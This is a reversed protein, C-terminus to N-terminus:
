GGFGGLVIFALTPLLVMAGVLGMMAAAAILVMQGWGFGLDSRAAHGAEAPYIREARRRMYRSLLPGVVLGFPGLMLVSLCFCLTFRTTPQLVRKTSAPPHTAYSM